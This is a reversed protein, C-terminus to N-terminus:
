RQVRFVHNLAGLLPRRNVACVALLCIGSWLYWSPVGKEILVCQAALLATSALLRPIDLSIRILARTHVARVCWIVIYSLLTSLAAGMSGLLPILLANGALNCAAGLMTTALTAGSRQEVMYISALFSGLCAFTTALTLVPM